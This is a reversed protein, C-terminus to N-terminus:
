APIFNGQSVSNNLHPILAFLTNPYILTLPPYLGYLIDMTHEGVFYPDIPYVNSHFTFPFLTM